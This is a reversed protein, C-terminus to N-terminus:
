RRGSLPSGASAASSGSARTSSCSTRCFRCRVAVHYRGNFSWAPNFVAGVAQKRKEPDKDECLLDFTAKDKKQCPLLLLSHRVMVEHYLCLYGFDEIFHKDVFANRWRRVTSDYGKASIKGNWSAWQRDITKKFEDSKLWDALETPSGKKSPDALGQMCAFVLSLWVGAALTSVTVGRVKMIGFMQINLETENTMRVRASDTNHKNSLQM